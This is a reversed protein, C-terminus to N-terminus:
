PILAGAIQDVNFEMMGLYTEAASGPPGLSEAFLQVIKIPRGVEAAVAEALRVPNTSEVFIAGIENREIVDVVDALDTASPAAATSLGPVITGVIEFGYRDAFYSWVAHNTVLVRVPVEALRVAFEANAAALEEAYAAAHAAADDTGLAIAILEAAEAMRVPDTWFHPDDRLPRLHPALELVPVGAAAAEALPDVLNEELGLGNAVVLDAEFLGAIQRASPVFEHPDTGPPILVEVAGESGVVNTAVDGLISTTAIVFVGQDTEAAGGTCAVLLGAVAWLATRRLRNPNLIM